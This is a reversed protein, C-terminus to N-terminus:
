ISKKNLLEMVSTYSKGSSSTMAIECTRNTSIYADAHTTHIFEVEDKTASKTLEPHLLGRDGAFACCGWNPPVVVNNSLAAALALLGQSEDLKTSSCTPHVVISDVKSITLKDLAYKSLYTPADFVQLGTLSAIFSESCSSNDSVVPVGFSKLKQALAQNEKANLKAGQSFGKSKWPTGCCINSIEGPIYITLGAKACIDEFNSQGSPGFIEGTCSPLYILDPKDNSKAIRKKGPTISGDM